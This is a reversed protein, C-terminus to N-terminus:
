LLAQLAAASSSPTIRQMCLIRRLLYPVDGTCSLMHVRHHLAWGCSGAYEQPVPGCADHLQDGHASLFLKGCPRCTAVALILDAFVSTVSCCALEQSTRVPNADSIAMAQM